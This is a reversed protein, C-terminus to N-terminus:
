IITTHGAQMVIMGVEETQQMMGIEKETHARKQHDQDQDIITTM